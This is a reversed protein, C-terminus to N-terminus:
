LQHSEKAASHVSRDFDMDRAIREKFDALDNWAQAIYTWAAANFKASPSDAFLRAVSAHTRCYRPDIRKRGSSYLYDM